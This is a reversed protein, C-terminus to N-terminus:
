RVASVAALGIGTNGSTVEIITGGPILEGSEEARRIMNLAVRDKASGAPNQRELKAAIKACCGFKEAINNLYVLPTSGILETFDNYIM